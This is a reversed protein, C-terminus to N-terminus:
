RSRSSVSASIETWRYAIQEVDANKVRETRTAAISGGLAEYFFRSPNDKLVWVGITDGCEKALRRSLADFLARGIGRDHYADNLYLAYIESTCNLAKERAPGGSIFGVVGDSASDAVYVWRRGNVQGLVSEWWRIEHRSQSLGVLVDDPLMGPYTARWSEVHIRAIAEADELRAQRVSVM